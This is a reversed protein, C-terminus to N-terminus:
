STCLTTAMSQTHRAYEGKDVRLQSCTYINAVLDVTFVFFLVSVTKKHPTQIWTNILKKITM